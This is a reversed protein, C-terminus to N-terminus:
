LELAEKLNELSTEMNNQVVRQMLLFAGIKGIIGFPPKYNYQWEVSTGGNSETFSMREEGSLYGTFNRAWTEGPKYDTWVSELKNRRPTVQIITSDKTGASRGDGETVAVEKVHITWEPMKSPEAAAFVHERPADIDIRAKLRPM